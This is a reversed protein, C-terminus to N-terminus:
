QQQPKPILLPSSVDLRWNEDLFELNENYTLTLEGIKQPEQYNLRDQTDAKLDFKLQIWRQRGTFGISSSALEASLPSPLAEQYDIRPYQRKSVGPLHPILKVLSGVARDRERSGTPYHLLDKIRQRLQEDQHEELKKLVREKHEQAAAFDPDSPLVRDYAALAEEYGEKAEEDRKILAFYDATSEEVRGSIFWNRTQYGAVKSM